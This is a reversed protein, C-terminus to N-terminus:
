MFTFLYILGKTFRRELETSDPMRNDSDNNANIVKDSNIQNFPVSATTASSIANNISKHRVSANMQSGNTSYNTGM